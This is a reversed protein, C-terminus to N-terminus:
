YSIGEPDFGCEPCTEGPRGEYDGWDHLCVPCRGEVEFVDLDLIEVEVEPSSSDDVYAVGSDVVIRVKLKKESM